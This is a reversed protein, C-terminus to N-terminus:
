KESPPSEESSSPQKVHRAILEQVKEPGFQEVLGKVVQEPDMHKVYKAQLKSLGILQFVAEEDIGIQEPTLGHLMLVEMFAVIHLHQVLDLEWPHEQYHEIIYEVLAREQRGSAVMHLPITEPTFPVAQLDILLREGRLSSGKGERRLRDNAVGM